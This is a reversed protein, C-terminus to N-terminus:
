FRSGPTELFAIEEATSTRGLIDNRHPFRGFRRIVDRHRVAWDYAGASEPYARLDDFLAVAREQEAPSEAHEFPLYAFWRQTPALDRDAGSEVLRRAIALAREDGAFMRPTDRFVNRTFQDLVIILALASEPGDAGWHDLRGALAHEILDGFRARIEADFAPDKRFWVDRPTRLGEAGFWFELVGAAGASASATDPVTDRVM